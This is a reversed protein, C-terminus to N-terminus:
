KCDRGPQRLIPYNGSVAVRGPIGSMAEALKERGSKVSQVDVINRFLDYFRIYGYQNGDAFLINETMGLTGDSGIGVCRYNSGKPLTAPDTPYAIAPTKPDTVNVVRYGNDGAAVYAYTSCTEPDNYLEIDRGGTFQGSTLDYLLPKKTTFRAKYESDLPKSENIDKINKTLVVEYTRDFALNGTPVLSAKMRGSEIFTTITAPVAISTTIDVLKFSDATLTSGDVPESFSVTVPANIMINSAGAKPLIEDVVPAGPKGEPIEGSEVVRVQLSRTSPPNGTADTATATFLYLGAATVQFNNLPATLSIAPFYEYRKIKIGTDTFEKYDTVSITSLPLM